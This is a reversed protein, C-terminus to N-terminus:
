HSVRKPAPIKGTRPHVTKSNMIPTFSPMVFSKDRKGARRSKAPQPFKAIGTQLADTGPVDGTEVMVQNKVAAHGLSNLHKMNIMACPIKFRQKALIQFITSLYFPQGCTLGM